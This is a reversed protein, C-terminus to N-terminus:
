SRVKRWCRAQTRSSSFDQSSYDYRSESSDLNYVAPRLTFSTVQNKCSLSFELSSNTASGGDPLWKRPRQSINSLEDIVRRFNSSFIHVTFACKKIAQSYLSDVGNLSETKTANEFIPLCKLHRIALFLFALHMTNM